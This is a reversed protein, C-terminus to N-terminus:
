IKKMTDAELMETAVSYLEPIETFHVRQVRFINSWDKLFFKFSTPKKQAPPLEFICCLGGFVFVYQFCGLEQERRVFPIHLFEASTQNDFLINLVRLTISKDWGKEISGNLIWVRFTEAVYDPVLVMKFEPLSSISARWFITAFAIFIKTNNELYIAHDAKIWMEGCNKRTFFVQNLYDEHGKMVLECSGCLMYEKWDFQSIKSPGRGSYVISKGNKRDKSKLLMFRPVIHSKRLNGVVSNEGLCLKCQSFKTVEDKM